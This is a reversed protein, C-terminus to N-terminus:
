IEWRSQFIWHVWLLSKQWSLQDILFLSVKGSQKNILFSDPRLWFTSKECTCKYLILPPINTVVHISKSTMIKLSIFWASFSSNWIIESVPAIEIFWVWLSLQLALLKAMQHLCGAWQFPDQHQSLNLAPPSSPLLPHSPQIADNVWHVHTQVFEPIYHFVPFGPMSCDMPNCLTLCFSLSQFIFLM